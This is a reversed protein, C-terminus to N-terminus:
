VREMLLQGRRLFEDVATQRDDPPVYQKIVDMASEVMADISAGFDITQKASYRYHTSLSLEVGRANKTTPDHAVACLFREIASHAWDVAESWVGGKGRLSLFDRYSNFGLYLAFGANSVRGPYVGPMRAIAEAVSEGNATDATVMATACFYEEAKERLEKASRYLSPM